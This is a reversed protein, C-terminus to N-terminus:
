GAIRMDQLRITGNFRAQLSGSNSLAPITIDSLEGVFYQVARTGFLWFANETDEYDRETSDASSSGM